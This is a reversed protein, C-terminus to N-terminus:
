EATIKFALSVHSNRPIQWFSGKDDRLQMFFETIQTDSVIMKTPNPPVHYIMNGFPQYLPIRALVRATHTTSYNLTSLNSIIDVYQSGSLNVPFNSTISASVASPPAFGLEDYCNNEGVVFGVTTVAGGVAITLKQTQSDFTVTYTGGGAAELQTKIETAIQAGTYHNADLTATLTGGGDESFYIKNNTSNIPYVTNPFEVSELTIAYSRIYNLRPLNIVWFTDYNDPLESNRTNLLLTSNM